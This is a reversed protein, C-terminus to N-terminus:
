RLGEALTLVRFNEVVWFATKQGDPTVHIEIGLVGATDAPGIRGFEVRAGNAPDVKYLTSPVQMLDYAFVSLGNDTWGALAEGDKVGRLSVPEGGVIPYIRWVGESKGVVAKGDPTLWPHGAEVGEPTVPRPNSGDADLIWTRAPHGPTTDSLWLGRGEPLLGAFAASFGEVPVVREVGAVTVARLCKPTGKPAATFWVEDGKACWALGNVDFYSPTLVRKEGAKSVIAVTGSSNRDKEHEVFALRDGQPSIRVDAIYGTSRVLVTGVPYELTTGPRTERVVAMSSGDATWDAYSIGEELTRPTGGRLPGIGLRPQTGSQGFRTM